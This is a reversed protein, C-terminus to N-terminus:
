VNRRTYKRKVKVEVNVVPAEVKVPYEGKWIYLCDNMLSSHWRTEPEVINKNFCQTVRNRYNKAEESNNATIKLAQVNGNLNAKIAKWSIKATKSMEPLEKRNIIEVKVM